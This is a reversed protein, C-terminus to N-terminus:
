LELMRQMEKEAGALRERYKVFARDIAARDYSDLRPVITNRYLAIMRERFGPDRYLRLRGALEGSIRREMGLGSEFATDNERIRADIGSFYGGALSIVEGNAQVMTDAIVTEGLMVSLAEEDHEQPNDFYETGRGSECAKAHIYTLLRADHDSLEEDGCIAYIRLADDFYRTMIDMARDSEPLTIRHTRAHPHHATNCYLYVYFFM